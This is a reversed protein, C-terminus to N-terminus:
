IDIAENHIISERYIGHCADVFAKASDVYNAKKVIERSFIRIDARNKWELISTAKSVIEDIKYPDVIYGNKGDIVFDVANGARNSCIIPIGAALAEFIVLPNPDKLSLLMFLDCFGYYKGLENNNIFGEVFINYLGNREKFNEIYKKLPGDGLLILGLSGSYNKVLEKYTELIQIIGKREVLQGVFLINRDCYRKRLMKLAEGDSFSNGEFKKNDVCNYSRFFPKSHQKPLISKLYEKSLTGADVFGSAYRAMIKRLAKRPKSTNAETFHTGEMWIIYEGKFILRYILSILTAFSFGACVIVDPKEKIMKIFLLPNICIQNEYGTYFVIGGVIEAEFPMDEPVFNWQPMHKLGKSLLILKFEVDKTESITQFLKIRYPAIINQILWIKM